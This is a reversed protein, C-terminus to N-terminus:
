GQVQLMAAAKTVVERLAGNPGNILAVMTVKWAAHLAKRDAPFSARDKSRLASNVRLDVVHAGAGDPTPDDTPNSESNALM